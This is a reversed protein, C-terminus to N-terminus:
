VRKFKKELQSLSQSFFVPRGHPCYFPNECATLRELLIRIQRPELTEGAKVSQRKCACLAAVAEQSEELTTRIKGEEVQDLFLRLVEM